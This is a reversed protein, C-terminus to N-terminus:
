REGGERLALGALFVGYLLGVGFAFSIAPILWLWSIV